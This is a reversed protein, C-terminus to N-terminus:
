TCFFGVYGTKKMIITAQFHGLDLDLNLDGGLCVAAFRIYM